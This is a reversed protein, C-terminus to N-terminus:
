KIFGNLISVFVVIISEDNHSIAHCIYIRPNNSGLSRVWDYYDRTQATYAGSGLYRSLYAPKDKYAKAPIVITKNVPLHDGLKGPFLRRLGLNMELFRYVGFKLGNESGGSIVVTNKDPFTFSFEEIDSHKAPDIVLKVVNLKDAKTIALKVGSSKQIYDALIVAYKEARKDQNVVEIVAQASGNEVLIVGASLPMVVAALVLLLLSKKLM